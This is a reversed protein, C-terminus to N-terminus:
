TRVGEDHGPGSAPASPTHLVAREPAHILQLGFEGPSLATRGTDKHTGLGAWVADLLGDPGALRLVRTGNRFPVAVQTTGGSRAPLEDGVKVGGAERLARLTIRERGDQFGVGLHVGQDPENLHVESPVGDFLMLLVGPALVARRLVRTGAPDIGVEPYDAVLRSRILLGSRPTPPKRPGDLYADALAEVVARDYSGCMGAWLAGTVLADLWGQDVRFWRLSEPPLARADPVLHDFPVGSLVRLGDLFSVLAPEGTDTPAPGGYGSSRPVSSGLVHAAFRETMRPDEAIEAVTGAASPVSAPFSLDGARVMAVPDARVEEDSGAAGEAAGDGPGAGYRAALGDLLAQAHFQPPEGALLRDLAEVGARREPPVDGDAPGREGETSSSSYGEPPLLGELLGVSSYAPGATGVAEARAQLGGTIQALNQAVKQRLDVARALAASFEQDALALGRGLSWATHHGVNRVGFGDEDTIWWTGTRDVTDTPYPTLPGRYFDYAGPRDARVHRLAVHGTEILHRVRKTYADPSGGYEPGPQALLHSRVPGDTLRARLDSYAAGAEVPASVFSWHHLSVLRVYAEARDPRDLLERHGEFSVLHAVYRGGQPDPLRNALLYAYEASRREEHTGETEEPTRIHALHVLETSTPAVRAFVEGPVRITAIAATEEEATLPHDASFVPVSVGPNNRPDLLTKATGTETGGLAKPDEPLEGEAFLLVGMWPTTGDDDSSLRREWPVIRRELVVHPLYRDFRGATSPPPYVGHIEDAEVRLRLGTVTFDQSLTFATGSPIDGGVPTRTVTITHDGASVGPVLNDIFHLNRTVTM